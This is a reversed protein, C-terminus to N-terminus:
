EAVLVECRDGNEEVFSRRPCLLLSRVFAFDIVCIGTHFAFLLTTYHAYAPFAFLAVFMLSTMVFFPFLLSSVYLTKPVPQLLNIQVYPIVFCKRKWNYQCHVRCLALPVTHLWKHLPFMLYVSIFLVLTNTDKLVPAAIFASVPIYFILFSLLMTIVSLLSIRHIDDRRTFTITKWCHM